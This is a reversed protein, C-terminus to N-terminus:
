NCSQKISMMTWALSSM